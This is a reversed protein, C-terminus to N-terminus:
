VPVESEAEAFHGIPTNAAGGRKWNNTKNM